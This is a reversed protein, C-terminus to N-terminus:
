PSLATLFAEGYIQVDRDHGVRLEGLSAVIWSINALDEYPPAVISTSRCSEDPFPVEWLWM